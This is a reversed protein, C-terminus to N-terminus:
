FAVVQKDIRVSRGGNFKIPDVDPSIGDIDEEYKNVIQQPISDLIFKKNASINPKTKVIEFVETWNWKVADQLNSLLKYYDRISGDVELIINGISINNNDM